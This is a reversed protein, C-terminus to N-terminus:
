QVMGISRGSSVPRADRAGASRAADAFTSPFLWGNEAGLVVAEAQSFPGRRLATDQLTELNSTERMEELCIM